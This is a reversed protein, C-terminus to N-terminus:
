LLQGVDIQVEKLIKNTTVLKIVKEIDVYMIRDEQLKDVEERIINYAIKTGKGLKNPNTFEVAQAGTLLEIAIVRTTNYLIDKAKRAAISGMSVHDEQNGSSPISDVSAPHALVKNESVLSAATYQAIMFGSNLGGHETLFAPLESLSPNVLREVRREASNALEALAIGLFDFALAMPQGHFNGCSIVENDDPFIIPNDTVANIEKNVKDLVYEIADKSAGHIQPLCRLSYPDQVRIEGQRTTLSSDKLINLMNKSCKMQGIHNRVLHVKEDFVDTIGRLAEFTLAASIDSMKALNIADYTALAGVATLVQTGNILALGEKASLRIPSIDARRMAEKGSVLDGKYYAEGEGLMVLVMHALPALDGSSGLSGKEPIAPHVGENIMDVLTNITGLRIGSYGKTLANVRLLMIARVIEISFHNGVGCAHSKILSSQLEEVEDKSIVVNSFKGFGTTIGYVVEGCEVIEDVYKRSKIVKEEAKKSIKVKSNERAVEVVEQLTLSNGDVYITNM